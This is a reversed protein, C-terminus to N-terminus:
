GKPSLVEGVRSYNATSKLLVINPFFVLRSGIQRRYFEAVSQLDLPKRLHLILYGDLNDRDWAFLHAM